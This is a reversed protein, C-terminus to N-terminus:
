SHLRLVNSEQIGLESVEGDATTKTGNAFDETVVVQHGPLILQLKKERFKKMLAKIKAKFPGDVGAYTNAFQRKMTFYGYKKFLEQLGFM